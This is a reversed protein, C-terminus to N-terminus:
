ITIRVPTQLRSLVTQLTALFKENDPWLIRDDQPVPADVRDLFRSLTASDVRKARIGLGLQEVRQANVAQEYQGAVPLLLM